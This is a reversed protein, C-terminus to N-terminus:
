GTVPRTFCKVAWNRSDAARIQYVDAFNGSRPLPLGTPGVITHGTKLDSDGFATAPNQVSENFDQPLPWNMSHEQSHLWEGTDPLALALYLAGCTPSCNRLCDQLTPRPKALGVMLEPSAHHAEFVRGVMLDPSAHHAEFVRGVMLDPSAHHAEFVRGVM